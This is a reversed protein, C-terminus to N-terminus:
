DFSAYEPFDSIKATKTYRPLKEVKKVADEEDKAWVFLFPYVCRQNAPFEIPYGYTQSQEIYRTMFKKKQMRKKVFKSDIKLYQYLHDKEVTKIIFLVLEKKRYRTYNKISMKKCLRYLKRVTLKNLHEVLFSIALDNKMM